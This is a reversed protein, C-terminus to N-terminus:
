LILHFILALSYNHNIHVRRFIKETKSKHKISYAKKLIILQNIEVFSKLFLKNNYKNKRIM